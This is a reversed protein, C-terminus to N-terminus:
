AIAYIEDNPPITLTAQKTGNNWTWNVTGKKTTARLWVNDAVLYSPQASAGAFTFVTTSGDPTETSGLVTLGSSPPTLTWTGDTNRTLTQGAGAKLTMGGGHSMTSSGGKVRAVERLGKQISNLLADLGAVDAIGITDSDEQGQAAHWQEIEARVHASFVAPDASPVLAAAARAVEDVDVEVMPVPVHRAIERASPVKADLIGAVHLAVQKIDVTANKGPTGTGDKGPDGKLGDKVMGAVRAAVHKQVASEVAAPLVAALAKNLAEEVMSYLLAPADPAYPSPKGRSKDIAAKLKSPDQM